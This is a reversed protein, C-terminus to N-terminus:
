PGFREDINKMSKILISKLNKFTNFRQGSIHYKFVFKAVTLFQLGEDSAGFFSV